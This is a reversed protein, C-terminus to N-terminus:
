ADRVGLAALLPRAKLVTEDWEQQPESLITIGGGTGIAASCGHLVVSRIVVALEVGGDVSLRGAAGAYLGRAGRELAHLLQVAARKPTGTMSGAPFLSAVATAPAGVLDSEITSVLQHVTRYSEVDFLGTVEVSGTRSVRALDNRVLDVIMLNEAREKDSARLEDALAADVAPDPDRRRTGKIPRSSARGQPTVDLFTEPSVSALTWGDIRLLLATPVRAAERLRTFVPVADPPAPLEVDIRNTLCLQYADGRTIAARCAEVMGLYEERSHRWVWEPEGSAPDSIPVVQPESLLAALAEAQAERGPLAVVSATRAGRDLEVGVAAFLFAAPPSDSPAAPAGLAAAGAEYGLWGWWGLLASSAREADTREALRALVADVGDAAPPGPPVLAEDAAALFDLAAGARWVVHPHRASLARWAAEPQIWRPLPLRLVPSPVVGFAVAQATSPATAGPPSAAARGRCSRAARRM